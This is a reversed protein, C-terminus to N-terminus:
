QVTLIKNEIYYLETYKQIYKNHLYLVHAEGSDFNVNRIFFTGIQTCNMIIVITALKNEIIHLVNL